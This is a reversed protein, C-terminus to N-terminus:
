SRAAEWAKLFVKHKIPNIWALVPKRLAAATEAHGLCEELRARSSVRLSVMTDVLVRVAKTAQMEETLLAPKRVLFPRFPKLWACVSGELLLRAFQKVYVRFNPEQPFPITEVPLEWRFKGFHVNVCCMVTDTKEDYFPKPLELPKSKVTLADGLPGLWARSVSTNELMYVKTTRALAHYVLYEPQSDPEFLCSSPHVFVPEDRLMCMYAGNLNVGEYKEGLKQVESFTMKRAVHDIFGSLLIQRCILV